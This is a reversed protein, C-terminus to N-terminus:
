TESIGRPAGGSRLGSCGYSHTLAAVATIKKSYANEGQLQFLRPLLLGGGGVHESDHAARREVQLSHELRQGLARDPQARRLTPDNEARHAHQSLAVILCRSSPLKEM